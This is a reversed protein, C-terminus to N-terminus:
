LTHTHTVNSTFMDLEEKNLHVEEMYKCEHTCTTHVYTSNYVFCQVTLFSSPSFSM